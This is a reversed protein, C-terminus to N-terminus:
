TVVHDANNNRMVTHIRTSRAQLVAHKDALLLGFGKISGCAGQGVRRSEPSRHGPKAGTILRIAEAFLM